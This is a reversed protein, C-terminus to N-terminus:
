GIRFSRQMWLQRRSDSPSLIGAGVNFAMLAYRNLALTALAAFTNEPLAALTVTVPVSLEALTNFPFAAFMALATALVPALLAFGTFATLVAFMDATLAAFTVTLAM